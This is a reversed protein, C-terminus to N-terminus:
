LGTVSFSDGVKIGHDKFWGQNVEIAYLCPQGSQYSQLNQSLTPGLSQARMSQVETLIKEKNFFGIDLNIYTDKMWFSLTKETPFIFLMGSDKPLKTRHMLGRNREKDTRAFEVSLKAGNSFILTQTVPTRKALCAPVGTLGLAVLVFFLRCNM